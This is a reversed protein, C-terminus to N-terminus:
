DNFKDLEKPLNIKLLKYGHEKFDSFILQVTVDTFEQDKPRTLVLKRKTDMENFSATEELIEGDPAQVVYLTTSTKSM